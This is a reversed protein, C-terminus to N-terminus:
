ALRRLNLIRVKQAESEHCIPFSGEVIDSRTSVRPSQAIKACSLEEDFCVAVKGCNGSAMVEYAKGVDKLPYRHSILDSPHINWRSLREVLEEMRWLSTVWSGYLTKQDHIMDRSPMMNM